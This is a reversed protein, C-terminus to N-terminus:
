QTHKLNTRLGSSILMLTSTQRGLPLQQSNELGFRSYPSCAASRFGSPVPSNIFWESLMGQLCAVTGSAVEIQLSNVNHVNVDSSWETTCDTPNYSPVCTEIISTNINVNQFVPQSFCLEPLAFHM